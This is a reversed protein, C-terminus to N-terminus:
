FLFFFLAHRMPNKLFYHHSVFKQTPPAKSNTIPDLSHIQVASHFRMWVTCVCGCQPYADVSQPYAYSTNFDPTYIKGYNGGGGGQFDWRFIISINGLNGFRGLNGVWFEEGQKFHPFHYFICGQNFHSMESRGMPDKMHFIDNSRELNSVQKEDGCVHFIFGRFKFVFQYEFTVFSCIRLGSCFFFIKKKSKEAFIPQFFSFLFAHRM